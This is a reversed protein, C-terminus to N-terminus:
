QKVVFTPVACFHATHNTMPEDQCIALRSLRRNESAQHGGPWDVLARLLPLTREVGGVVRDQSMSRSM